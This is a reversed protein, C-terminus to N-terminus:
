IDTPFRASFHLVTCYLVEGSGDADIADFIVAARDKDAIEKNKVFKVAGHDITVFGRSKLSAMARGAVGLM